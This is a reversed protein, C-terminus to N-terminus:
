ALMKMKTITVVISNPEIYPYSTPLINSFRQDLQDIWIANCMLICEDLIQYILLEFWDLSEYLFFLGFDGMESHNTIVVLRDLIFIWTIILNLILIRHSRFSPRRHPSTGSSLLEFTSAPERYDLTLDNWQHMLLIHALSHKNGNGGLLGRMLQLSWQTRTLTAVLGFCQSSRVLRSRLQVLQSSHSPRARSRALSPSRVVKPDCQFQFSGFLFPKEM